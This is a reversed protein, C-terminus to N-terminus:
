TPKGIDCAKALITDNSYCECTINCHCLYDNVGGVEITECKAGFLCPSSDCPDPEAVYSRLHVIMDSLMTVINNVYNWVAILMLLICMKHKGSCPVDRPDTCGGDIGFEPDFVQGDTCYFIDIIFGLDCQFYESCNAPNPILRSRTDPCASVTGVHLIFYLMRLSLIFAVNSTMVVSIQASLLLAFLNKCANCDEDIYDFACKCTINCDSFLIFHYM